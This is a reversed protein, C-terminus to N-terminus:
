WIRFASGALGSSHATDTTVPGSPCPKIVRRLNDRPCSRNNRFNSRPRIVHGSELTSAHRDEHLWGAEWVSLASRVLADVPKISQQEGRGGRAQRRTKAGARLGNRRLPARGGRRNTPPLEGDARTGDMGPLGIDCLVVTPAGARRDGAGDGPPGKYRSGGGTAGLKGPAIFWGM